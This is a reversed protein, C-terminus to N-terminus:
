DNEDIAFEAYPDYRPEGDVVVIAAEPYREITEADFLEEITVVPLDDPDGHGNDAM